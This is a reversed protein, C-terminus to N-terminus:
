AVPSANLFDREPNHLMYHMGFTIIPMNIMLGPARFRSAKNIAKGVPVVAPAAGATVILWMAKQADFEVDFSSSRVKAGASKPNPEIGVTATCVVSGEIEFKGAAKKFSKPGMKLNLKGAKLNFTGSMKFGALKTNFINLTLSTSGAKPTDLKAAFGASIPGVTKGFSTQMTKINTTANMNGKARGVVSLKFELDITITFLSTPIRLAEKVKYDFPLEMTPCPLAVAPKTAAKPLTTNGDVQNPVWIKPLKFPFQAPLGTLKSPNVGMVSRNAELIDIAYCPHGYVKTSLKALSEGVKLSESGGGKWQGSLELTVEVHPKAKKKAVVKWKADLDAYSRRETKWFDTVKKEYFKKVVSTPEFPWEGLDPFKKKAEAITKKSNLLETLKKSADKSGLVEAKTKLDQMVDSFLSM